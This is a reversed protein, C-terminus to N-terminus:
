NHQQFNQHGGSLMLYFLSSTSMRPHDPLLPVTPMSKSHKVLTGTVMQHHLRQSLMVGNL